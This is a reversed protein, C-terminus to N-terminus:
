TISDQNPIMRFNLNDILNAKQDSTEESIKDSQGVTEVPKENNQCPYFYESPNEYYYEYHNNEIWHGDNNTYTENESPDETNHFEEVHFKPPGNQQFFNRRNQQPYSPKPNNFNPRNVYNVQRTRISRDIEMPLPKPQQVPFPKPAFVNRNPVPLKPVYFNNFNKALPM